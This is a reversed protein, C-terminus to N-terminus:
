NEKRTCCRRLAGNGVVQIGILVIRRYRDGHSPGIRILNREREISTGGILGEVAEVLWKWEWIGKLFEFDFGARHPRLSPLVRGGGHGHCGFRSGVFKVPADKIVDTVIHKVASGRCSQNAIAQLLVLKAARDA